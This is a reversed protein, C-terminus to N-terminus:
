NFTEHPMLKIKNTFLVEFSYVGLTCIYYVGLTCIHQGLVRIVKKLMSWLLNYICKLDGDILKIVIM